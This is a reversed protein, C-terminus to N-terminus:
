SGPRPDLGREIFGPEYSWGDGVWSAQNNTASTRGDVSSSAYSLALQPVLGGPAPPVRLPYSWSFDGTQTSVDWKASPALPTARTNGAGDKTVGGPQNGHLSEKTAQDPGRGGMQQESVPTSRTDPLPVSPGAAYAPSTAAATAM